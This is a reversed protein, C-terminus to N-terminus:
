QLQLHTDQGGIKSPEPSSFDIALSVSFRITWHLARALIRATPSGSAGYAPQYYLDLAIRTIFPGVPRIHVHRPCKHATIDM